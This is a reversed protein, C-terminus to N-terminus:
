KKAGLPPIYENCPPVSSVRDRVTLDYPAPLTNNECVLPVLRVELKCTAVSRKPEVAWYVRAPPRRKALLRETRAPPVGHENTWVPPAFETPLTYRRPMWRCRPSIRAPLYKIFPPVNETGTM